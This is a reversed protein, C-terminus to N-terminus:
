NKQAAAQGLSEGMPVDLVENWCRAALAFRRSVEQGYPRPYVERGRHFPVGIMRRDDPLRLLM